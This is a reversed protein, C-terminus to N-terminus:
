ILITNATALARTMSSQEREMPLFLSFQSSVALYTAFFAMYVVAYSASLYPQSYAEYDEVNLTYDANLIRSVNYLAGTNDFTHSSNINFYATNWVNSYFIPVVIFFSFIFIGAAQNAVAFFPFIIPDACYSVINWDFTTWPNLGMGCQSGTIIALTVSTPAIWTIWNFYSLATFIYGPFWYYFFMGGFCVLFFKFRSIKWGHVHDERGDQHHLAKNLAIQALNKPWIM